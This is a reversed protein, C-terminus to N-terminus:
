DFEIDSNEDEGPVSTEAPDGEASEKESLSSAIPIQPESPVPKEDEATGVDVQNTEQGREEFQPDRESEFEERSESELKSIEQEPNEFQPGSGSEFEERSGSELKSMEQETNEFDQEAGSEFGRGEIEHGTSALDPSEFGAEVIEYATENFGADLAQKEPSNARRDAIPASVVKKAKPSSEKRRHIRRKRNQHRDDPEASVVPPQTNVFMGDDPSVQQALANLQSKRVPLLKDSIPSKVPPKPTQPHHFPDDIVMGDDSFYRDTTPRSPIVLQKEYVQSGWGPRGSLSSVPRHSNRARDRRTLQAKHILSMTHQNELDATLQLQREQKSRRDWVLIRGATPPQTSDVVAKAHQLANLHM